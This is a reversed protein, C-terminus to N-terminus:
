EAEAASLPVLKPLNTVGYNDIRQNWEEETLPEEEEESGYRIRWPNEQGSTGDYICSIQPYLEKNMPDLIFFNTESIDAGGSADERIVTPDYGERGCLSLRDREASSFAHRVEGDVQVFMDYVIGSGDEDMIVLAPYGTGTLDVFAYGFYDTLDKDSDYSLSYMYSFGDEELGQADKKEKLDACLKKLTEDYVATHDVENQPVFTGDAPTLSDLIQGKFAEAIAHYNEKSEKNEPDYQVDSPYEIVLDLRSGDSLAIEGGRRFNPVSAYDKENQYASISGVFGGYRDEAQKEYFSIGNDSPIVDCIDAIEKPVTLSFETCSVIGTNEQNEQLQEPEAAIALTGVSGSLILATSLVAPAFLHKVIKNFM